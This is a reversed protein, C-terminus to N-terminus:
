YVAVKAVENYWKALRGLHYTLRRSKSSSTLQGKKKRGKKQVGAFPTSDLTVSLSAFSGM